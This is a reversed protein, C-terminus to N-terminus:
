AGVKAFLARGRQVDLETLATDIRGAGGPLFPALEWAIARCADLLAGLVADLRASADTDGARAANGLEWPKTKSVFGNAASVVNWLAATATRLDFAALADDIETSVGECLRRLSVAEPV